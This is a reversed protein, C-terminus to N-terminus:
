NLKESDEENQQIELTRYQMTHLTIQSIKGINNEFDLFADKSVQNSM